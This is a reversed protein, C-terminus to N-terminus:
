LRPPLVEGKEPERDETETEEDPRYGNLIRDFRKWEQNTMNIPLTVTGIRNQGIPVPITITGELSPPAPAPPPPPPTDGDDEIEDEELRSIISDDDVSALRITAKYVDVFKQAGDDTFNRDMILYERIAADSAGGKLRHVEGILPPALASQKLADIYERSARNRLIFTLAQRSLRPKGGKKGDILGYQRLAALKVRVPGSASTYGWAKAADELTFEGRQFRQYVAQSAEIAEGLDIGPYNPSRLRTVM